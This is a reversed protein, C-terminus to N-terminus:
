SGDRTESVKDYIERAKKLTLRESEYEVAALATDYPLWVASVVSEGNEIALSGADLTPQIFTFFKVTKKISVGDKKFDYTVEDTEYGQGYCEVGTEEHIERRAADLWSENEKLHGKPINNHGNKSVTLRVFLQDGNQCFCVGGASFDHQMAKNYVDIHQLAQVSKSFRKKTDEHRALMKEFTQRKAGLVLARLEEHNSYTSVLPSLSAVEELGPSTRVFVLAGSSLAEVAALGFGEHTSSM